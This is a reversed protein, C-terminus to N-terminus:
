GFLNEHFEDYDRLYDLQDELDEITLNISRMEDSMAQGLKKERIFTENVLDEQQMKGADVARDIFMNKRQERSGTDLSGSSSYLKDTESKIDMLSQGVNKSIDSLGSMEMDKMLTFEDQYQQRKIDQERKLNEIGTRIVDKQEQNAATAKSANSFMQIASLGIGISSLPNGSIFKSVPNNSFFNRANNFTNTFNTKMTPLSPLQFGSTNTYYELYDTEPNITGAGADAVMDEGESGYIDIIAAEQENVHAINNGVLRLTSDGKRGKSANSINKTSNISSMKKPATVKIYDMDEENLLFRENISPNGDKDELFMDRITEPKAELDTDYSLKMGKAEAKKVFITKLEGDKNKTEYIYGPTGDSKKHKAFGVDIMFSDLEKQEEKREATSSLLGLSQLALINLDTTAKKSSALKQEIRNLKQQIGTKINAINSM